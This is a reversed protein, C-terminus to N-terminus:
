ENIKSKKGENTVPIKKGFRIHPIKTNKLRNKLAQRLLTLDDSESM